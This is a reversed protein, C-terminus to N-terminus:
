PTRAGILPSTPVPWSGSVLSLNASTGPRQIHAVGVCFRTWKWSKDKESKASRINTRSRKVNKAKQKRRKVRDEAVFTAQRPYPSAHRQNGPVFRETVISTSETKKLFNWNENCDALNIRWNQIKWNENPRVREVREQDVSFKLRNIFNIRWYQIKWDDM